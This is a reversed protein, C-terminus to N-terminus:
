VDCPLSLVSEAAITVIEEDTAKACMGLFEQLTINTRLWVPWGHSSTTTYKMGKVVLDNDDSLAHTRDGLRVERGDLLARLIVLTNRDPDHSGAAKTKM